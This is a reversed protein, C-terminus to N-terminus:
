FVSDLLFMFYAVFTFFGIHLKFNERAVNFFLLLFSPFNKLINFISDRGCVILIKCNYM